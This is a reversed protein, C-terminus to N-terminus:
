PVAGICDVRMSGVQPTGTDVTVTFGVGPNLVYSFSAPVQGRTGCAIGTTDTVWPADFIVQAQSALTFSATGSVLLGMSQCSCETAFQSDSCTFPGALKLAGKTKTQKNNLFIRIQPTKTPAAILLMALLWRM